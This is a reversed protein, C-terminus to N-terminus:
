PAVAARANPPGGGVVVTILREPHVRQFARQVDERTVANIRSAFTDLYDLPLRYFGIMALYETIKANSDIRLPFGGTINQKAAQLEDASPGSEVFRRLETRLLDLAQAAQDNRTQLGMVFPGRRLMPLFYSYVSYSLGRKERIEENLRSVLGSGGLIHNGVYLAFYDPDGRRMGPQGVRIHTQTSPHSVNITSAESLEPVQPRPPPEAGAPLAGTVTQALAEAQTRSLAGVIAVVANRAVYFRKHFAVLDARQLAAVTEPTGSPPTAYPHEGYVAQYFAKEALKGPSQQEVQLAVLMRSREREFASDPFAPAAIIQAFTQLAPDLLAPDTLSRLSVVAMDRLASTSVEAGVDEFREAIADADLTATGDDLLANTLTALGSRGGDRASGADFVVRVDVMPLEPAAVFFVRAGNNTQWSQIEPAAQLTQSVGALAAVGWCGLAKLAQRWNVCMM